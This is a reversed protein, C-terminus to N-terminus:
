EKEMADLVRAEMARMRQEAEPREHDYGLLHLVGHIVLLALERELPHHQEEAQREAKERADRVFALEYEAPEVGPPAYEPPLLLVESITAVEFSAGARSAWAAGTVVANLGHESGDTAALVRKVEAM